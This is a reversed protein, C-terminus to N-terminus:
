CRNVATSLFESRKLIDAFEESGNLNVSVFCALADSTEHLSIM